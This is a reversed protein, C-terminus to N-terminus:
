PMVFVHLVLLKAVKNLSEGEPEWGAGAGFDLHRFLPPSPPNTGITSRM